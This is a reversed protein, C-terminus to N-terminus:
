NSRKGRETWITRERFYRHFANTCYLRRASLSVLPCSCIRYIYIFLLSKNYWCLPLLCSFCERCVISLFRSLTRSPRPFQTFQPGVHGNAIRINLDRHLSRYSRRNRSFYHTQADRNNTASVPASIAPQLRGLHEAIRASRHRRAPRVPRFLVGAPPYFFYRTCRTGAPKQGIRPFSADVDLFCKGSPPGKSHTAACPLAGHTSTQAHTCEEVFYYSCGYVFSYSVCYLGLRSRHGVTQVM